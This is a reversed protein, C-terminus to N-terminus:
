QIDGKIQGCLECEDTKHPHLATQGNAAGPGFDQVAWRAVTSGVPPRLAPSLTKCHHGFACELVQAGPVPRVM